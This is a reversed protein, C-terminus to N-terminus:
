PEAHSTQLSWLAQPGGGRAMQRASPALRPTRNGSNRYAIFQDASEIARWTFKALISLNNVTLFSPTLISFALLLVVLVLVARLKLLLLITAALKSQSPVSM